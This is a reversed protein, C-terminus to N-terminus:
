FMNLHGSLPSLIQKDIEQTELQPQKRKRLIIFLEAVFIGACFNQDEARM